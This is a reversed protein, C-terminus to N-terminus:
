RSRPRRGPTRQPQGPGDRRRGRGGSLDLPPASLV